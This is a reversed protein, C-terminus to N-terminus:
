SEGAEELLERKRASAKAKLKATLRITRRLEPPASDHKLLSMFLSETRTFLDINELTCNLKDGDLFRLCYGEPVPGNADEWIARHKHRQMTQGGRYPNPQSVKLVVFGTTPCIREAGIEKTWNLRMGPEREGYLGHSKVAGQIALESRNEGFQDNFAATLTHFDMSRYGERLFEKQEKTYRSCRLYKSPDVRGKGTFRYYNLLSHISMESKRLKYKINFAKTLQPVTMTKFNDRLFALQEDSYDRAM